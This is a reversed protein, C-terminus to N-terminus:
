IACWRQNNAWTADEGADAEFAEPYEDLTKISVESHHLPGDIRNIEQGIFEAVYVEGSAAHRIFAIDRTM